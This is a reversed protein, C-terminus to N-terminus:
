PTRGSSEPASVACLADGNAVLHAVFRHGRAFSPDAIRVDLYDGTVGKANPGGGVVVVDALGGARAAAYTAAKRRGLDRLQAARETVAAPHCAIALGTRRRARGRRIRFCTCTRSRCSTSRACRRRTIKPPRVRSGPSSTRALDLSRCAAALREISAAYSARTYWHAGMRKLM